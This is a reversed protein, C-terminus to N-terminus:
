NSVSCRPCMWGKLDFDRIYVKDCNACARTKREYFKEVNLNPCCYKAIRIDNFAYQIFSREEKNPMTKRYSGIKALIGYNLWESLLDRAQSITYALRREVLKELDITTRSYKRLTSMAKTNSILERCKVETFIKIGREVASRSLKLKAADSREQESVIRKCLRICDRPSGQSFLIIKTLDYPDELLEAFSLIKNDSFTRVRNCLMEELQEDNWELYYSFVRDPRGYKAFDNKLADWLFFKFAVGDTELVELNKLLPAIFKFSDEPNNGGTLDNEDVKDILIYVAQYGLAKLYDLIVAFNEKNSVNDKPNEAIGTIDVEVGKSKTISKVLASIPKKFSEWVDVSLDELTKLSNIANRHFSFPTNKLYRKALAYLYQRKRFNFLHTLTFRDTARLKAFVSVLLLRNLYELHYDLTIQDISSIKSLDHETYSITLISEIDYNRSEIMNKQATKGSGRPGFVIAPSPALPDGWIDDYYDPAIFYRSLLEEKDANTSLFPDKSFGLKKIYANNNLDM